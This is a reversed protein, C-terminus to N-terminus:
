RQRRRQAILGALGLALLSLTAPEPVCFTDIVVQDLYAEGAAVPRLDAQIREWGPNPALTFEYAVVTWGTNFDYAHGVETFAPDFPGGADTWVTLDSLNVANSPIGEYWTFQMRVVKTRNSQDYNDLQFIIREVNTTGEDPIMLVNGRGGYESLLQTEATAEAWPATLGRPTAQWSDPSMLGPFGTWADWEATLTNQSGRWPPPFLDDALALSQVLLLVVTIIALKGM